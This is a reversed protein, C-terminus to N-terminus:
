PAHTKARRRKFANNSHMIVPAVAVSALLAANLFLGGNGVGSGILALVAYATSILAIALAWRWSLNWLPLVGLLAVVSLSLPVAFEGWPIDGFRAVLNWRWMFPSAAVWFVVAALFVRYARSSKM